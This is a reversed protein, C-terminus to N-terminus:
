EFTAPNKAIADVHMGAKHAFASRGVFPRHEDPSLNAIEDIFASAETLQALDADSLCNIGLKLKLVPIISCLNANGTREGRGNMTAGGGRRRRRSLPWRMSRIPRSGM